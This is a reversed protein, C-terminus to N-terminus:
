FWLRITTKTHKSLSALELTLFTETLKEDSLLGVRLFHKAKQTQRCKGSGTIDCLWNVM